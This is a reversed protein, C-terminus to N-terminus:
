QDKKDVSIFTFPVNEPNDPNNNSCDLKFRWLNATERLASINFFNHM